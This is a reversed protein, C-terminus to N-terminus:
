PYASFNEVGGIGRCDESPSAAYTECAEEYFELYIGGDGLDDSYKSLLIDRPDLCTMTGNRVKVQFDLASLAIESESLVEECSFYNIQTKENTSSDVLYAAIRGIGPDLPTNWLKYDDWDGDAKEIWIDIEIVEFAIVTGTESLSIPGIENREAAPMPREFTSVIPERM